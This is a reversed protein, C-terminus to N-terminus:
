GFIHDKFSQIQDSLYVERDAAMNQEEELSYEDTGPVEEYFFHKEVTRSVRLAEEKVVIHLCNVSLDLLLPVGKLAPM